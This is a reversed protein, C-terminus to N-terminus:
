EAKPWTATKVDIEQTLEEGDFMIKYAYASICSMALMMFSTILGYIIGLAFWKPNMLNPFSSASFDSKVIQFAFAGFIALIITFAVFFILYALVFSGTHGKTLNWSDMVVIKRRAISITSYQGIRALVYIFIGVCAVIDVFILIGALIPVNKFAFGAVFGIALGVLVVVLYTAFYLAFWILSSLALRNEDKGWTFGYFGIEEGRIMKRLVAGKYAVYVLMSLIILPWMKSTVESNYRNLETIDPEGGGAFMIKFIDFYGIAGLAAFYLVMFVVYFLSYKLVFSPHAKTFDIISFAAARPSFRNAM